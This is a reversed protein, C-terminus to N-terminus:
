KCQERVFAMAEEPACPVFAQHVCSGSSTVWLVQFLLGGPVVLVVTRESEKLTYVARKM